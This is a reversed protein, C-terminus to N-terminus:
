DEKVRTAVTTYAYTLIGNKTTSVSFEIRNNYVIGTYTDVRVYMSPKSSIIEQLTDIVTFLITDGTYIYNTTDRAFFSIRKPVDKLERSGVFNNVQGTTDFHFCMRGDGSFKTCYIGSLRKSSTITTVAKRVTFVADEDQAHLMVSILLFLIALIRPMAIYHLLYRFTVCAKLKKTKM